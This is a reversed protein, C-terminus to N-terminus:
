WVYENLNLLQLGDLRTCIGFKHSPSSGRNWGEDRSCAAGVSVFSEIRLLHVYWSACSSCSATLSSIEEEHGEQEELEEHHIM